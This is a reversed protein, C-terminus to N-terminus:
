NECDPYKCFLNHLPCVGDVKNECVKTTEENNQNYYEDFLDEIKEAIVDLDTKSIEVTDVDDGYGYDILINKIKEKMDNTKLKIYNIKQMVFYM